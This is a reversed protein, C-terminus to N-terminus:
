DANKVQLVVERKAKRTFALNYKAVAFSKGNESESNEAADDLSENSIWCGEGDSVIWLYPPFKRTAM